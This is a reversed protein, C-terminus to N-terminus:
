FSKIADIKRPRGMKKGIKFVKIQQKQVATM